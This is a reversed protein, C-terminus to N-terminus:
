KTINCVLHKDEKWIFWFNSYFCNFLSDDMLNIYMKFACAHGPTSIVEISFVIDGSSDPCSKVEATLQMVLGKSQGNTCVTKKLAEM